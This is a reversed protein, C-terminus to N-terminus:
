AKKVFESKLIMDGGKALKCDINYDGDVIRKIVKTSVKLVESAGKVKLDKPWLRM